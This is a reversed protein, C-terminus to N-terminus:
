EVEELTVTGNDISNQLETLEILEAAAVEGEAVLKDLFQQFASIGELHMQATAQDEASFKPNRLKRACDAAFDRFYGNEVVKTYARSSRLSTLAKAIEVKEQATAMNLSVSEM